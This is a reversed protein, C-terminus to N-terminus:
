QLQSNDRDISPPGISLLGRPSSTFLMMASCYHLPMGVVSVKVQFVLRGMQPLASLKARKEHARREVKKKWGGCIKLMMKLVVESVCNIKWVCSRALVECAHFSM